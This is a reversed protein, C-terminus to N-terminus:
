AASGKTRIREIRRLDGTLQAKNLRADVAEFRVVVSPGCEEFFALIPREGIEDLLTQDIGALTM